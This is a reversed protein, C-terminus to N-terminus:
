KVENFILNIGITKASKSSYVFQFQLNRPVQAPFLAQCLQYNPAVNYSFGFQNLKYNPITTLMGTTSDLVNFDVFDGAEGGVIEVAYVQASPFTSQAWAFTNAGAALSQQFGMRREFYSKGNPAANTALPPLTAVAVTSIENQVLPVGNHATVAADVYSWDTVDALFAITLQNGFLNTGALDLAVAISSNHQIQSIMSDLACPSKTYVKSLM